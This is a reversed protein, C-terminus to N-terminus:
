RGIHGIDFAIGGHEIEIEAKFLLTDTVQYSPQLTVRASDFGNQWHGGDSPNQQLGFKIEGYAGFSLGSLMGGSPSPAPTKELTKLRANLEDIQQQLAAGNAPADAADAVGTGAVLMLLTLSLHTGRLSSSSCHISM